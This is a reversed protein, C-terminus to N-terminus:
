RLRRVRGVRRRVRVPRARGVVRAHLADGDALEIEVLHPREAVVCHPEVQRPAQELRVRTMLERLPLGRLPSLDRIQNSHCYCERLPMRRCPGLDKIFNGMCGLETLPMGELPSLDEVRSWDFWLTTLQMGRLPSLDVLKGRTGPM